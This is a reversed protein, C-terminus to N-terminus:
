QCTGPKIDLPSRGGTWPAVETRGRPATRDIRRFPPHATRYVASTTIPWASTTASTAETSQKDAMASM